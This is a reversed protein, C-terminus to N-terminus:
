GNKKGKKQNLAAVAKKFRDKPIEELKEAGIYKLFKSEDAETANILDVIQSLQKEDTLSTSESHGAQHTVTCTVTVDGNTQITKWAANLGYPGMSKNITTAVNGLTAHSYSTGGKQTAYKVKRDKLIEPACAKWESMALNYAKRAENSEWKQQLELLKELKDLDAGKAIAMNIADAPTEYKQIEDM